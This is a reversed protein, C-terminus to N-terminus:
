AGCVVVATGIVVVFSGLVVAAGDVSTNAEVTLEVTSKTVVSVVIGGESVVTMRDVVVAGVAVNADVVSGLKVTIVM